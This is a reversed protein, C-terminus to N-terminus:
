TKLTLAPYRWNWSFTQNVYGPLGQQLEDGYASEILDKNKELLEIDIPTLAFEYTNNEIEFRQTSGIRFVLSYKGVKWNFSQRTYSVLDILETSGLASQPNANKDKSLYILKQILKEVRDQKGKHYGRDQFRIQREEIDKTNLKIALVSQEKESFVTGAPSNIRGLPQVIGQWSFTQIDGAEHRLELQVNSVIIEKRSSAFALRINAIPGYTTFGIEVQEQTIVRVKPKTLVNRLGQVIPPIWALAGLVAVADILSM